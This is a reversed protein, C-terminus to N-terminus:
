SFSKSSDTSLLEAQRGVYVGKEKTDGMVLAGAGIVCENAIKIGDRITSNVGLFCYSGIKVNGSIVVHSAIFCHDGISTHHGIHNGSWITVDNGIKVFPQVTQNELILCNDGIETDGWLVSKSSIYTILKYGKRKAEEYKSARVKNLKNYGIAVFMGYEKPPFRKEVEDFPVVPLGRFEKSNVFGRDATFAVVKHSTDKTFYFHVVEALLGTGFIVVGKM